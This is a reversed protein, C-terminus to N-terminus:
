FSFLSSPLGTTLLQLMLKLPLLRIHFKYKQKTMRLRFFGFRSYPNRFIYVMIYMYM